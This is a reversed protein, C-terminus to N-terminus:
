SEEVWEGDILLKHPSRVFSDAQQEVSELVAMVMEEGRSGRGRADINIGHDRDAGV